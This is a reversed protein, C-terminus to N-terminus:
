VQLLLPILSNIILIILCRFWLLTTTFWKENIFMFVEHFVLYSFVCSYSKLCKFPRLYVKPFALALAVTCLKTALTRLSLRSLIEFHVNLLLRSSSQCSFSSHDFSYLSLSSKLKFKTETPSASKLMLKLRSYPQDATPWSKSDRHSATEVNNKEQHWIDRDRICM